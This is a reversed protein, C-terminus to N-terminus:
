IVQGTPDGSLSCFFEVVLCMEVILKQFPQNRVSRALSLARIKSSKYHDNIADIIHGVARGEFQGELMLQTSGKPFTKVQKLSFSSFHSSLILTNTSRRVPRISNSIPPNIRQTSANANQNMLVEYRTNHILCRM